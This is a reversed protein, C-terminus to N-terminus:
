GCVDVAELMKMEVRTLGNPRIMLLTSSSDGPPQLEGSRKDTKQYYKEKEEVRSLFNSWIM